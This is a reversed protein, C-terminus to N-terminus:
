SSLKINIKGEKTINEQEENFNLCFGIATQLKSMDIQLFM